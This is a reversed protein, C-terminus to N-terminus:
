AFLIGGLIVMGMLILNIVQTLLYVLFCHFLAPWWPLNFINKYAYVFYGIMLLSPLTLLLANAGSAMFPVYLIYFISQMGFIYTNIILHEALNFPVKGRFITYSALVTAPLTSLYFLNFYKTTLTGILKLGPKLLDPLRQWEPSSTFVEGGTSKKIVLEVMLFTTVATTLLLFSFPKTYSKRNEYLYEQIARAPRLLFQKVTYGLGKELNLQELIQEGIKRLTIREPTDEM